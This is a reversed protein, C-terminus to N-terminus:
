RAVASGAEIERLIEGFQKNREMSRDIMPGILGRLASLYCAWRPVFTRAARREIAKVVATAVEDTPTIKKMYGPLEENLREAYPRKIAEETLKTDVLGFYTVGASAGFPQLEVRLARGLAEVGSKAVAYPSNLAGNVYAFISANLVVHGKREVIQPLVARVTRWIGLMDVEFVREWEDPDSGRITALESQGIGANAFAVDIGGFQSVTETAAREIATRDTVDAGIGLAREGIQAAAARSQEVDLDVIAVSAGREHLLRATEYGIGGAGGTVLAVKGRPDLRHGM